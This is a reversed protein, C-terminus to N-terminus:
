AELAFQRRLEFCNSIPDTTTFTPDMNFLIGNNGRQVIAALIADTPTFKTHASRIVITQADHAVNETNASNRASITWWGSGTNHAGIMDIKIINLRKATDVFTNFAILMTKTVLNRLDLGHFIAQPEPAPILLYAGDMITIAGISNIVDALSKPVDVGKPIPVRDSRRYGTLSSWITDIRAKTLYRCVLTWNAESIIDAPPDQDDPYIKHLISTRIQRFFSEMGETNVQIEILACQSYPVTVSQAM